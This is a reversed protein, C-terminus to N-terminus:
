RFKTMQQDIRKMEEAFREKMYSYSNDFISLDTIQVPINNQKKQTPHENAKHPKNTPKTSM